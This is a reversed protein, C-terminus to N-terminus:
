LEPEISSLSSADKESIDKIDVESKEDEESPKSSDSFHYFVSTRNKFLKNASFTGRRSRSNAAFDQLPM